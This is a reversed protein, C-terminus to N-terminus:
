RSVVDLLLFHLIRALSGCQDPHRSFHSELLTQFGPKGSGWLVWMVHGNELARFGPKHGGLVRTKPAPFHATLIRSGKM